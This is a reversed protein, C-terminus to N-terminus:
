IYKFSDAYQLVVYDSSGDPQRMWGNFSLMSQVIQYWQDSVVGLVCCRASINFQISNFQISNYYIRGFYQISRNM